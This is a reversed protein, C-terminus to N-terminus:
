TLAGTHRKSHPQIHTYFGMHKPAQTRFGHRQGEMTGCLAWLAWGPAEWAVTPAEGQSGSPVLPRRAVTAPVRQGPRGPPPERPPAPSQATPEPSAASWGSSLWPGARLALLQSGPCSTFNFKCHTVPTQVSLGQSREPVPAYSHFLDTCGPGPGLPAPCRDASPWRRSPLKARIGPQAAPAAAWPPASSPDPLAPALPTPGGASGASSAPPDPKAAHQAKMASRAAAPPQTKSGGRRGADTRGSGPYSPSLLTFSTRM